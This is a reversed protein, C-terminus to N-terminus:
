GRPAHLLEREGRWWRRSGAISSPRKSRSITGHESPRKAVSSHGRSVRRQLLHGAELRQRGAAPDGGGDGRLDAVRRRRM